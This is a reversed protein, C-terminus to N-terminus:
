ETFPIITLTENAQDAPKVRAVPAPDSLASAEIGPVAHLQFFDEAQAVMGLLREIRRRLEPNGACVADLHAQIARPDALEKAVNFIAEEDLDSQGM